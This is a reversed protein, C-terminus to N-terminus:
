FSWDVAWGPTRDVHSCDRSRTELTEDNQNSFFPLGLRHWRRSAEDQCPSSLPGLITKTKTKTKTQTQTRHHPSRRPQSARWDAPLPRTRIHQQYLTRGRPDGSCARLYHFRRGPYSSSSSPPAHSSDTAANLKTVLRNSRIVRVHVAICATSILWRALQTSRDIHSLDSHTRRTLGNNNKNLVKVSPDEFSELTSNVFWCFLCTSTTGCHSSM